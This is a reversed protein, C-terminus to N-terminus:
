WKIEDFESIEVKNFFTKLFDLPSNFSKKIAENELLNHSIIWEDTLSSYAVDNIQNGGKIKSFPIKKDNFFKEFNEFIELSKKSFELFDKSGFLFGQLNPNTLDIKGRIFDIIKEFNKNEGVTPCIHLMLVKLGDTIGCVTCDFINKTYAKEAFVSEKVTWPYDVYNQIGYTSVIKNFQTKGVPRITSQFSISDMDM